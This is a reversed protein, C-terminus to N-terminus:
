EKDKKNRRSGVIQYIVGSLTICAMLVGANEELFTAAEYATKKSQYKLTGFVGRSKTKIRDAYERELTVLQEKIELTDRDILISLGLVLDEILMRHKDDNPDKSLLIVTSLVAHVIEDLNMEDYPLKHLVYDIRDMVSDIKFVFNEFDQKISIKHVSDDSDYMNMHVYTKSLKELATYIKHYTYRMKDVGVTNHIHLSKYKLTSLMIGLMMPLVAPVYLVSKSTNTDRISTLVVGDDENINFVLVLQSNTERKNKDYIISSIVNNNLTILNLAADIFGNMPDNPNFPNKNEDRPIHIRTNYYEGNILINHYDMYYNNEDADLKIADIKNKQQTM